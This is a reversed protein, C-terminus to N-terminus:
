QFQIKVAAGVSYEGGSSDGHLWLRTSAERGGRDFCRYGFITTTM